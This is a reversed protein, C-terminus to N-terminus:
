GHSEGEPPTPLPQWHTPEATVHFETRWARASHFGQIAYEGDIMMQGDVLWLLVTTGDRPATEIKQWATAARLRTIEDAACLLDFGDADHAITWIRGKGHPGATSNRLREVIDMNSM